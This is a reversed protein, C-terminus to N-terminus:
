FFLNGFYWLPDDTNCHSINCFDSSNPIVNQYLYILIRLNKRAFANQIGPHIDTVYVPYYCIYICSLCAVCCPQLKFFCKMSTFQLPFFVIVYYRLFLSFFSLSGLAGKDRGGHSSVAFLWGDIFSSPLARELCWTHTGQDQVEPGESGWSTCKQQKFYSWVTVSSFSSHAGAIGSRLIDLPFSDLTCRLYRCAWTWHVLLGLFWSTSVVWSNILSHISLSSSINHLWSFSLLGAM